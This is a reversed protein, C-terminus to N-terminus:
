RHKFNVLLPPHHTASVTSAQVLDPQRRRTPLTLGFGMVARRLLREPLGFPLQRRDSPM